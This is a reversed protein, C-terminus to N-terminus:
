LNKSCVGFAGSRQRKPRMFDDNYIRIFVFALVPQRDMQLIQADIYAAALYVIVHIVELLHQKQM